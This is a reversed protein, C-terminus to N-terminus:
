KVAVTTGPASANNGVILKIPQNGSQLGAPIRVNVQLAGNVLTPASGAYLVEAPQTGIRVYVPLQPRVLNFDTVAGNPLSRDMLGAGTAFLTVVSGSEAPRSPSNLSGDQNFSAVPGTGSQNSTFLGPLTTTVTATTVGTFVGSREVAIVTFVRGAVEAPVIVSTQTASAYVIPAPVNDFLVRTDAVVTSLRGNQDLSGTTLSAPGLGSGFLTVIELPAVSTGPQDFTANSSYSAANTPRFNLGGGFVGRLFKPRDIVISQTPDGSVVDGLWYQLTQNGRPTATFTVRSGEDYYDDTSPSAIISGNGSTTYDVFHQTTFTASYTAPLAGIQVTRSTALSGDEWGAFNLRSADSPSYQPSSVALTHTTGTTFSLFRAPTLYPTGDLRIDAGPPNSEVSLMPQATFGAQFTIPERVELTLTTAAIGFGYYEANSGFWRYFTQGPSPKASIKVKTGAIYYGDSSAPEVTVTGTGNTIATSIGTTIPFSQQFEAAIVTRDASATFTHSQAGGDTWRVFRNRTPTATSGSQQVSDVALSHNVGPVWDFAHPAVYREGDVVITLGEPITTITTQSPLFGYTRSIADIDGASLGVRQGIPIGPPVTELSTNGDLSFAEGSYHMISGYDYYGLDRSNSLQQFQQYYVSDINEFLVTLWADRDKRSQEHMLGFTHGIEHIVAAPECGAGLVITQQGGAMGISSACGGDSSLQFQVYNSQGTRPLIKLPTKTNWHDIADLVRKQNPLSPSITYYVTSDPWLRPATGLGLYLSAARPTPAKSDAAAAEVEAVTGLIIDGETIALDGNVTYRVTQGNLVVTRVPQRSQSYAACALLCLSLIQKLTRRM